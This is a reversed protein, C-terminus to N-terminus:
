EFLKGSKQLKRLKTQRDRPDGKVSFNLTEKKAQQREKNVANLAKSAYRTLSRM